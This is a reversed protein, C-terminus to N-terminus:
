YPLDPNTYGSRVRGTNTSGQGSGQRNDIDDSYGDIRTISQVVMSGIRERLEREREAFQKSLQNLEFKQRAASSFAYRRSYRRALIGCLDAATLLINESRRELAYVLQKDSFLPADEDEDGIEFRIQELITLGDEGPNDEEFELVTIESM